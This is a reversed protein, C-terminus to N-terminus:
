DNGRLLLVIANPYRESKNKRSIVRKQLVVAVLPTTCIARYGRKNLHFSNLKSVSKPRVHLHPTPAM